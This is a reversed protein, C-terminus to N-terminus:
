KTHLESIMEATEKLLYAGLFVTGTTVLVALAFTLTGTAVASFVNQLLDLNTDNM